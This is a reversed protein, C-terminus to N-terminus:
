NSMLCITNSFLRLPINVRGGPEIEPLQQTEQLADRIKQAIKGAGDQGDEV